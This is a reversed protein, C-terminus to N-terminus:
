HLPHTTNSLTVTNHKLRHAVYNADEDGLKCDNLDAESKQLEAKMKSRVGGM